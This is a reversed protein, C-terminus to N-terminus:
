VACDYFVTMGKIFALEIGVFFAFSEDAKRSKRAAINKYVSKIEASIKGASRM